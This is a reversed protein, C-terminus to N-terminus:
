GKLKVINESAGCISCRLLSPDVGLGGLRKVSLIPHHNFRRFTTPRRCYPCWYHEEFAEDAPIRPKWTVMRTVQQKKGSATVFYKGKIRVVRQPPEFQLGGCNITADTVQPLLKKLAKFADQYSAFRKMRWHHEGKKQVILRWPQKGPAKLHPPLNPVKCFFEKYHPDQLLDHINIM